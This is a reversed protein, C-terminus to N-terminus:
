IHNSTTRKAQSSAVSVNSGVQSNQSSSLETFFIKDESTDFLQFTRPIPPMNVDLLGELIQVVQGMTPRHIEADQICWCAVKCVKRLEEAEESSELKLDLITLIDDEAHLKSAAWSPFFDISSDESTQFNRRGSIIEFLMMGYSYVDAKVTVAVGSIWEPALYGLTGRITTLVRSFDRGVLKALGFDAVKPSFDADLLINEPKIDCHIICDRCKEHLYALGRATGLAIQFRTKWDLVKSDEKGHFLHTDLSGNPLYDYVLLKKTGESCFGHLRVLNVHQIMGITSVEARFQKEGQSISELKKVAIVTSDSLTGKFVSGFGGSGLKESFNKTVIQLDKYGFVMLSGKDAIATVVSRRKRWILFFALGFLLIVGVSGLVYTVIKRISSSPALRIYVTSGESDDGSYQQLDLLDGTWMLCGGSWAYANCSFNNLCAVKCAAATEAAMSVSNDPLKMRSLPLFKDKAGNASASSRRCGSSYDGLNWDSPSKIEYGNVCSCFHMSNENCVGFPGCYAYVECQSPLSLGLNWQQSTPLQFILLVKLQGTIDMIVRSLTTPDNLYYIIYSEEANSIYSYNINGLGMQPVLSFIRGDWTGSTWYQNTKNWYIYFQSTGNPDLEFSFLGEAPDDSNKWSTLLRTVKTRKNFGLKSGPLWTDTPHDFSQWLIKSENSADRLVFNGSDNLVAITSNSSASNLNTSWIRIGSENFLVLNGDLLKLEASSSDVIPIDRNAVWVVAQKPLTGYWIGIYSNSSNGPKFFGLVFNGGASVITQSGSLSENGSITDGGFSVHTQLSFCLFFCLVLRPSKGVDM